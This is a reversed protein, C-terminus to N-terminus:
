NGERTLVAQKREMKKANLMYEMRYYFIPSYKVKLNKVIQLKKFNEPDESKGVLLDQQRNLIEDVSSDYPIYNFEELFQTFYEEISGVTVKSTFTNLLQGKKISNELTEQDYFSSLGANGDIIGDDKYDYILNFKNEGIM